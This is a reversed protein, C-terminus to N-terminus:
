VKEKKRIEAEALLAKKENELNGDVVADLLEQLIRGVERGAPIGLAMLDRGNVALDRLSLCAHEARLKEVMAPLAYWEQPLDRFDPHHALRDCRQIELLRAIDADDFRMMLRRVGKEQTPLPIDHERM